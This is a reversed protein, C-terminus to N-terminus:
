KWESSAVMEEEDREGDFFRELVSASPPPRPPQPQQHGSLCRRRLEGVVETGGAATNTHSLEHHFMSPTAALKLM